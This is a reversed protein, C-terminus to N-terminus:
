TALDGVEHAVLRDGPDGIKPVLGVPVAGAEDDLQLALCLRRHDQILEELVRLEFLVERHISDCEVIADGPGEVDGVHHVEVDRVLELDDFPPGLEAELLGLRPGVDDLPQEDREVVDVLHHLDDPARCIDVGGAGRQHLPELQGLNLGVM